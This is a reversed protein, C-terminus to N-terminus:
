KGAIFLGLLGFYVMSIAPKCLIPCAGGPMARNVWKSILWGAGAGLLGGIALTM